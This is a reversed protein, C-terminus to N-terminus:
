TPDRFTALAARVTAIAISGMHRVEHALADLALAPVTRVNKDLHRPSGEDEEEKKFREELFTTMYGTLPWMLLIGMANFMSHFLALKVAPSEDLNMLDQLWALLNLLWP